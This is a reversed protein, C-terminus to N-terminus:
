RSRAPRSTTRLFCVCSRESAATITPGIGDGGCVGIVLKDLSSYDTFDKIKKINEARELQEYLLQRYKEVAEDVAKDFKNGTNIM